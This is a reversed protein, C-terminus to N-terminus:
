RRAEVERPVVGPTGASLLDDPLSDQVNLVSAGESIRRAMRSLVHGPGVEVFTSTGENVMTLFCRAWQVAACIQDSLEQRVEEATTLLRASVNSVLPPQPDRFRLTSVFRSLERAADQMIPTHGPVSIPLRIVKAGRERALAMARQLASIEGAIVTQGPANVVAVWASERGSAEECVREVDESNLGLISALGGPRTRAWETMIRGREVVLRLGDSFDLAGSAVAATFQGLSHGATFSPALRKGVEEVKERLFALCAMSTALIAPQANITNQLERESGEFCLKSLRFGLVEDAQAFVSRAAESVAHIHKGMGPHQSGQGPFLLALKRERATGDNEPM